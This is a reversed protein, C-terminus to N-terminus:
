RFRGAREVDIEEFKPRRSQQTFAMAIFVAGVLTVPTAYAKLFQMEKEQKPRLAIREDPTFEHDHAEGTM